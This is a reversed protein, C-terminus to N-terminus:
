NYSPPLNFEKKRFFISLLCSNSTLYYVCQHMKPLSVGNMWKFILWNCKLCPWFLVSVLIHRGLRSTERIFIFYYLRDVLHMLWTYIYIYKSERKDWRVLTFHSHRVHVSYCIEEFDMKSWLESRLPKIKSMNFWILAKLYSVRAQILNWHLNSMELDYTITSTFDESIIKM